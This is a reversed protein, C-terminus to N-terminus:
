AFGGLNMYPAILMKVRNPLDSIQPVSQPVAEDGFAPRNAQRGVQWMHRVLERAALRIAPPIESLGVQAVIVVNGTGASFVDRSTTSGAYVIGAAADLVYNTSVVGNVTVSTVSSVRVPLVIAGGGGDVTFTRPGSVIPGTKDEILPTAAEIYRELDADDAAVVAKWGLSSRAEELTCLGGVVAM